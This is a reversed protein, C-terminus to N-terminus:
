ERCSGQGKASGTVFASSRTSSRWAAFKRRGHISARTTGASVALPRGHELSEAADAYTIEGGNVLLTATPAGDAVTDAVVGLWPSEDGWASGPVLVIHTHNPELEAADAMDPRQGGPVIVTGEAAVGVLPFRGRSAARARGVARMVGANTGGDVVVAALQNLVPLVWRVLM